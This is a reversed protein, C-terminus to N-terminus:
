ANMLTPLVFQSLKRHSFGLYNLVDPNSPDVENLALLLDIAQGYRGANIHRVDTVYLGNSKGNPLVLNAQPEGDEYTGIAASLTDHAQQIEQEFACPEFCTDGMEVIAALQQKAQDPEDFHLHVVGLAVYAQPLITNYKVAKELSKKADKYDGLGLQSIGLFARVDGDRSRVKVVKSFADEATEYDEAELAAIGKEFEESVNVTSRPSRKSSSSGSMSPSSSGYQAAKASDFSFVIAGLSLVVTLILSLPSFQILSHTPM